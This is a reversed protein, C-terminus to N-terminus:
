PNRSLDTQGMNQGMIPYCGTSLNPNKLICHGSLRFFQSIESAKQFIKQSGFKPDLRGPDINETWLKPKASRRTNINITLGKQSGSQSAGCFPNIQKNRKTLYQRVTGIM